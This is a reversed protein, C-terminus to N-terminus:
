ILGPAACGVCDRLIEPPPPVGQPICHQNVCIDDKNPCMLSSTCFDSNVRYSYETNSQPPICSNERILENEFHELNSYQVMSYFMYLVLLVIFITLLHSFKM